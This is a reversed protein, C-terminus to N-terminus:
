EGQEYWSPKPFRDSYEIVLVEAEQMVNINEAEPWYELLQEQSDVYAVLIPIIDADYGTCWYPYKIPWVVPRYDSVDVTFRVKIM